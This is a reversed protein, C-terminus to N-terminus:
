GPSSQPTVEFRIRRAALVTVASWSAAVRVLEQGLKRVVFSPAM